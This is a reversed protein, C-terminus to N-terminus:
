MDEWSSIRLVNVNVVKCGWGEVWSDGGMGLVVCLRVVGCWVSSSSGSSEKGEM